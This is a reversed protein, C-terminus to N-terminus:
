HCGRVESTSLINKVCSVKLFLLFGYFHWHGDWLQTLQRGEPLDCVFLKNM